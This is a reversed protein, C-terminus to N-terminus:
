RLNTNLPVLAPPPRNVKAFPTVLLQDKENSRIRNHRSHRIKHINRRKTEKEQKSRLKPANYISIGAMLQYIIPCLSHENAPVKLFSIAILLPM